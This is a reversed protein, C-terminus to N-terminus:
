EKETRKKNELDRARDRWDDRLDRLRDRDEGLRASEKEVVILKESLVRRDHAMWELEHAYRECRSSYNEEIEKRVKEEKTKEKRIVELRAQLDAVVGELETVKLENPCPEEGHDDVRDYSGRRWSGHGSDSRDSRESRREFKSNNWNKKSVGQLRPRLVSDSRSSRSSGVSFRRGRGTRVLDADIDYTGQLKLLQVMTYSKFGPSCYLPAPTDETVLLATKPDVVGHMGKKFHTMMWDTVRKIGQQSLNKGLGSNMRHEEWDDGRVTLQRQGKSRKLLCKHLQLPTMNISLNLNRTVVNLSAIEDWWPQLEPSFLFSPFVVKHMPYDKVVNRVATMYKMIKGTSERTIFQNWCDLILMKPNTDMLFKTVQELIRVMGRDTKVCFWRMILGDEIIKDKGIEKDSLVLLAFGPHQPGSIGVMDLKNCLSAFEERDRVITREIDALAAAITDQEIEMPQVDNPPTIVIGPVDVDEQQVLEPEILNQQNVAESM